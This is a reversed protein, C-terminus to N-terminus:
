NGSLYEILQPLNYSDKIPCKWYIRTTWPFTWTSKHHEKSYKIINKKTNWGFFIPELYKKTNIIGHITEPSRVLIKNLEVFSSYGNKYTKAYFYIQVHIDSELSEPYIWTNGSDHSATIKIDRNNIISIYSENNPPISSKVEIKINNNGAIIDWGPDPNEFNDDRIEDFDIVNCNCNSQLFFLLSNKAIDGMFLNDLLEVPTRSYMMTKHVYNFKRIVNEITRNMIEDNFPLIFVDEIKM